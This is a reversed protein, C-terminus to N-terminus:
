EILLLPEILDDFYSSSAPSWDDITFPIFTLNKIQLCSSSTRNCDSIDNKYIMQ